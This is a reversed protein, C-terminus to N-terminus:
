GYIMKTFPHIIKMQEYSRTPFNYSFQHHLLNELKRLSVKEKIGAPIFRVEYEGRNRFILYHESKKIRFNSLVTLFYVINGM